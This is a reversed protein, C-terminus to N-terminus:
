DTPCDEHEETDSITYQGDHGTLDIFVAFEEGCEGCLYHGTLGTLEGM